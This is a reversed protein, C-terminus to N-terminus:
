LNSEPMLGRERRLVAHLSHYPKQNEDDGPRHCDCCGRARVLYRSDKGRTWEGLLLQQFRFGSMPALFQAVGGTVDEYNSGVFNLKIPFRARDQVNPQAKGGLKM